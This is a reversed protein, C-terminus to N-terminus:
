GKERRKELPWQIPERYGVWVIYGTLRTANYQNVTDLWYLILLDQRERKERRKALLWNYPNVTDLGYLIALSVRQM